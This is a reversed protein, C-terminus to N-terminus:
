LTTVKRCRYDPFSCRVDDDFVVLSRRMAADGTTRLLRAFGGGEGTETVVFVCEGDDLLTRSTHRALDRLRSAGHREQEREVEWALVSGDLDVLLLTDVTFESVGEQGSAQWFESATTIFALSM